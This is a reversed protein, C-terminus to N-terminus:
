MQFLDNLYEYSNTVDPQLYFIVIIITKNIKRFWWDFFGVVILILPTVILGYM